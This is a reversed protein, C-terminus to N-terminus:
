KYGNIEMFGQKGNIARTGIYDKYSLINCLSKSPREPETKHSFFGKPLVHIYKESFYYWLSVYGFYDLPLALLRPARFFRDTIHCSLLKIMWFGYYLRITKERLILRKKRIQREVLLRVSMWTGSWITISTSQPKLKLEYINNFWHMSKILIWSNKKLKSTGSHTYAQSIFM